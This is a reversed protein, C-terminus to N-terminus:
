LGFKLTLIFDSVFLLFSCLVKGGELSYAVLEIFLCQNYMQCQCPLKDSLHVGMTSLDSPTCTLTGLPSMEDLGQCHVVLTRKTGFHQLVNAM